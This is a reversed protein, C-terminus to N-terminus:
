SKFCCPNCEKLQLCTNKNLIQMSEGQTERNVGYRLIKQLKQTNLRKEANLMKKNYSPYVPHPIWGLAGIGSPCLCSQPLWTLRPLPPFALPGVGLPPLCPTLWQLTSCLWPGGGPASGSTGGRRDWAPRWPDPGPPYRVWVTWSSPGRWVPSHLFLLPWITWALLGNWELPHLSLLSNKYHTPTFDYFMNEYMTLTFDRRVPSYLLLVLSNSDSEYFNFTSIIALVNYPNQVIWYPFFTSIWM